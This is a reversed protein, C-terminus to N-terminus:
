PLVGSISTIILAHQFCAGSQGYVRQTAGPDDNDLEVSHKIGRSCGDYNLNWNTEISRDYPNFWLDHNNTTKTVTVGNPSSNTNSQPDIGAFNGNQRCWYM